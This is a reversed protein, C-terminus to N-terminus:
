HFLPDYNRQYFLLTLKIEDGECTQKPEVPLSSLRNIWFRLLSKHGFNNLCLELAIELDHIAFIVQVSWLSLSFVKISWHLIDVLSVSERWNM